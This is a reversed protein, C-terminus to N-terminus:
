SDLKVNIAAEAMRQKRRYGWMVWGNVRQSKEFEQVDRGLAFGTHLQKEEPQGPLKRCLTVAYIGDGHRITKLVNM